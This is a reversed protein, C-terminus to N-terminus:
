IWLKKLAMFLKAFITLSKTIIVFDSENKEREALNKM